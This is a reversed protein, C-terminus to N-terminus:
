DIEMLKRRRELIYRARALARETVRLQMYQVGPGSPNFRRLEIWGEPIRHGPNWESPEGPLGIVRWGERGMLRELTRISYRRMWM